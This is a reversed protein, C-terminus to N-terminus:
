VPRESSRVHLRVVNGSEAARIQVLNCLQNALWLGRGGGKHPSPRRRGVLPDGIFGGDRIECIVSGGENWLRLSGRSGGYRLSNTAIENAALVLDNVRDQPMGAQAAHDAVLQRVRALEGEHFSLLMVDDPPDSLADRCPEALTSSGAFTSSTSSRGSERVIPHTRRAEAIVEDSLVATDYPCLLWFAPNAFAINLLAEHRQCEALKAPSQDPVIPEGIGRFRVGTATQGNLFDDLAPIIHAPNDGLESMDAFLVAKSQGMLRSRIENIKEAALVVLIPEDAAIAERIFRVSVDLFEDNNSYLFAEHRYDAQDAVRTGAMDVVLSV